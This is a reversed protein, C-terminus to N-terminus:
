ASLVDTIQCAGQQGHASHCQWVWVTYSGLACPCAVILVSTVAWIAMSPDAWMWYTASLTAVGMIGWTFWQGWLDMRRSLVPKQAAPDERWLSTLYSQDLAKVVRVDVSGGHLRSGAAVDDGPGVPLPLAEGTIFQVDVSSRGRVIVADMPILEGHRIRLEDEPEVDNLAVYEPGRSASLRLTALPFYSKYDREFDLKAITSNQFWRGVLLFFILGALSDFYGAGTGSAMDWLSKGWLAVIGLAIPVDMNAQGTRLAGLASKFYSRGSYGVLPLSLAATIWRMLAAIGSDTELGMYEPFAFLMTNGFVFGAVGLELISQRAQRKQENLGLKGERQALSLDPPYGMFDLKEAIAQLSIERPNYRIHAEKQNFNVRVDILGPELNPWTEVARVCSACHLSPLSLVGMAREPSRQKFLHAYLDENQLADYRSDAM